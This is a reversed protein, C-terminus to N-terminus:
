RLPRPRDCSTVEANRRRMPIVCSLWATDTASSDLKRTASAVTTPNPAASIVAPAIM